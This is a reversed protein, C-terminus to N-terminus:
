QDTLVHFIAATGSDNVQFNQNTMDQGAVNLPALPVNTVNIESGKLLFRPGSAYPLFDNSSNSPMVLWTWAPLTALLLLFLTPLNHLKHCGGGAM